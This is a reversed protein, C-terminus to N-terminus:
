LSCFLISPRKVPLCFSSITKLVAFDKKRSYWGENWVGSLENFNRRSLQTYSENSTGTERVKLCGKECLVPLIYAYKMIESLSITNRKLTWVDLMIYHQHKCHMMSLFGSSTNISNCLIELFNVSLNWGYDDRLFM